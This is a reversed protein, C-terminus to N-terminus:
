LLADIIAQLAILLLIAIMPSLDIAGFSPLRRRLLGLYPDCVDHLFRQLPALSYPMRVWSTIVYLLIVLIYVDIFVNLFDRASSTADLVM